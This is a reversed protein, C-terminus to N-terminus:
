RSRCAGSSTAASNLHADIKLRDNKGVTKGLDDLEGEVFDLVSKRQARVREGDMAGMAAGAAGVFLRDFM